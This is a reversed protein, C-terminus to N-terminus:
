DGVLDATPYGTFVTRVGARANWPTSCSAACRFTKLGSSWSASRTRWCGRRCGNALAPWRCATGDEPDLLWADGGATSFLVLQGLRVVSGSGEMARGVIYDVEPTIRIESQALVEAKM